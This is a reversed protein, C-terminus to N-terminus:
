ARCIFYYSSISLCNRIDDQSISSNSFHQKIFDDAQVNLKGQIAQVESFVELAAKHIHKPDVLIECNPRLSFNLISNLNLAFWPNVAQFVCFGEKTLRQRAAIFLEQLELIPYRNAPKGLYILDFKHEPFNQRVAKSIQGQALAFCDSAWNLDTAYQEDTTLNFLTLEHKTQRQLNKIQLPTDCYGCDIGLFKSKEKTLLEHCIKVMNLDYTQDYSWADMHNKKYYLQRGYINPNNEPLLTRPDVENTTLSGFHFCATDECHLQRYGYRRVRLNFDDDWFLLSYFLPDCFGINSLIKSSYIALTPLVRFRKNWLEPQSRNFNNAWNIFANPDNFPPLAQQQINSPVVSHSAESQETTQTVSSQEQANNISNSQVRFSMEMQNNDTQPTMPTAMAINPDSKICTLLNEAWNKTVLVDNNSLIIYRGECFWPIAAFMHARVNHKFHIIKANPVTRLFELTEDKSGHDILILEANLKSLDTYNLLQQVCLKTVDLHNYTTVVISLQYRYPKHAAAAPARFHDAFENAYYLDMKETDPYIEGWFFCAEKFLHVFPVLHFLVLTRLQERDKATLSQEISDLVDLVNSQLNAIDNKSLNDQINAPFETITSLQQRIDNVSSLVIGTISTDAKTTSANVETVSTGTEPSLTDTAHSSTATPDNQLASDTKHKNKIRGDKLSPDDMLVALDHSKQQVQNLTDLITGLLSSTSLSEATQKSHEM